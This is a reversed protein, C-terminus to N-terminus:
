AQVQQMSQDVRQVIEDVTMGQANIVSAKTTRDAIGMMDKDEGSIVCCDCADMNASLAVVDHGKDQLAQKVNTLSNEVAVKAM